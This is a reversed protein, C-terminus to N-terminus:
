LSASIPISLRREVPEVRIHGAKGFYEHIEKVPKVLKPSNAM